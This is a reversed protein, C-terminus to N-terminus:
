ILGTIGILHLSDLRRAKIQGLGGSEEYKASNLREEAGKSELLAAKRWGTGHEERVESKREDIM